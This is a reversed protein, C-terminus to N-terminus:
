FGGQNTARSTTMTLGYGARQDRRSGGRTDRRARRAGRARRPEGGDGRVRADADLFHVGPDRRRLVGPRLLAVYALLPTLFTFMLIVVEGAFMNGFLRFTFSILRVVESVLELFGVFFDIPGKFNFFKGAYTGLGLSTIGWFQIAIVAVIAIALPTNLDTNIGRFLPILEGVKQDEAVAEDYKEQSDPEDLEISNADSTVRLNSPSSFPITYFPGVKEFILGEVYGHEELQTEVPEEHGVFGIVNFIPTLSLWNAILIFFFISAVLPFFRRGNEDGAINTVLQYFGEFAAEVFNQVGSPVLQWNRSVVFLGIVIIATIIWGTVMTNTIKVGGVTTLEEAAIAIHPTPGRLFIFGVLFVFFVAGILPLRKMM